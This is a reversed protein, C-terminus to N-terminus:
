SIPACTPPRDQTIEGALWKITDTSQCPSRLQDRDLLTRLDAGRALKANRAFVFTEDDAPLLEHNLLAEALNEWGTPRLFM